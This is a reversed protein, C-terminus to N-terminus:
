KNRIFNWLRTWFPEKKPHLDVTCNDKVKVGNFTCDENDKLKITVTSDDVTVSIGKNDTINIGSNESM